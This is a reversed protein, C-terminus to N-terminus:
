GLPKPRGRGCPLFGGVRVLGKQVRGNAARCWLQACPNISAEQPSGALVQAISVSRGINAYSKLTVSM